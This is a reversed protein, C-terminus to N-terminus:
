KGLFGLGSKWKFMERVFCAIVLFHDRLNSMSEFIPTFIEMNPGSSPVVVSPVLLFESTRGEALRQSSSTARLELLISPLNMVVYMTPFLSLNLNM